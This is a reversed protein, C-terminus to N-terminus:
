KSKDYGKVVPAYLSKYKKISTTSIFEFIYPSIEQIMKEEDDYALISEVIGKFNDQLQKKMKSDFYLERMTTTKRPSVKIDKNEIMKAVFYDCMTEEKEVLDIKESAEKLVDINVTKEKPVIEEKKSQQIEEREKPVIEEKKSIDDSAKEMQKHVVEDTLKNFQNQQKTIIDEFTEISLINELTTIKESIRINSNTIHKIMDLDFDDLQENIIKIMRSHEDIKEDVGTFRNDIKDKYEALEKILNNLKEEIYSEDTMIKNLLKNYPFDFKKM